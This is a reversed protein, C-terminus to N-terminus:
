YSACRCSFLSVCRLRMIMLSREDTVHQLSRCAGRWDQRGVCACHCRGDGRPDILRIPARGFHNARRRSLSCVHRTQLRQM